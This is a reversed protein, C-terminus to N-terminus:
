AKEEQPAAVPNDFRVKYECATCGNLIHRERSVEGGLVTALFRAEADCIEPFREAVAQIACNHETLTSASDNSKVEAMYGDATLLQAVAALREEPTRHAFQEQLATALAAYRAELMAVVSARGERDVLGDLLGTLTAEYRRPFLAEGAQALRYAFTPAGVGRHERQYHVLEQEELDKLHHRVANLSVSLRLALEKTTLPQAKKLEVLIAGRVGRYGLPFVPGAQDLSAAAAM